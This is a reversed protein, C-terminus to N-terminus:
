HKRYFESLKASLTIQNPSGALHYASRAYALSFKYIKVGLGWSLGVTGLRSDVKMEQRRQYNYGLRFSLGKTINFEAGLIAHRLIKNGVGIKNIITDGTLPDITETPKLPDDYTMVPQQLNHAVFSFRLPVHLLRKSLGIQAEFPLTERNGDVYSNFQYGVNKVLVSAEFLKDPSLYSAGLDLAMGFSSYAELNSIITKVNVGVSFLSDIKRGFGTTLCYEGATFEGNLQGTADAREFNGYDIYQMSLAFTGAKKVNFAYAANGFNIGAFYKVYTLSTVGAMSSNILGPNQYALNVDDDRLSIVSGGLAQVRASNPLNLFSYVNQGGIQASVDLQALFILLFLFRFNM